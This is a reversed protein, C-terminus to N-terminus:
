DNLIAKGSLTIVPITLWAAVLFGAVVGFEPAVSHSLWALIMLTIGSVAFWATPPGDGDVVLALFVFGTAWFGASVYAAGGTGQAWVTLVTIAIAPLTAIMALMLLRRASEAKALAVMSRASRRLPPMQFHLTQAKM